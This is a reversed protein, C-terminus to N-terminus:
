ELDIKYNGRVKGVFNLGAQSLLLAHLPTAQPLPAKEQGVRPVSSSGHNLVPWTPHQAGKAAVLKRPASGMRIQLAAVTQGAPRLLSGM